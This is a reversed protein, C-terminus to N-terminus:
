ALARLSGTEVVLSASVGPIRNLYDMLETNTKTDVPKVERYEVPVNEGLVNIAANLDRDMVLSCDDCNFIRESLSIRERHGCRSCTQSTPIYRPIVILTHTKRKLDSMIGGIASAQVKRGWMCMWGKICDNQFGIKEYQSTLVSVIKNRQDKRQNSIKQYEKELKQRTRYWNKSRYVRRSLEGHLKKIKGTIFAGEKVAIGNSLTLQNKIGFDVGIGSCQFTKEVESSYAAVHLYYDGNRQELIASAPEANRPIQDLGLVKLKGVNQIRIRKKDIISYTNGYQKM